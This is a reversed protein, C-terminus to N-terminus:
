AFVYEIEKINSGYLVIRLLSVYVRNSYSTTDSAKLIIWQINCFDADELDTKWRLGFLSLMYLSSSFTVVNILLPFPSPYFSIKM